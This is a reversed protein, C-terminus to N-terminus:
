QAHAYELCVDTGAVADSSSFNGLQAWAVAGLYSSILLHACSAAGFSSRGLLQALARAQGRPKELEGAVACPHARSVWLPDSRQYRQARLSRRAVAGECAYVHTSTQAQVKAVAAEGKRRQGHATAM